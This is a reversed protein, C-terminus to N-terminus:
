VGQRLQERLRVLAKGLENRGQRDEGYGWFADIPSAEIIERDGTGLLMDRLKSHQSFKAELIKDMVSINVKFWDARQLRRSRSAEDFAARASPATRITESLQPDADLFKSAQFLHESTPYIKGQFEVPYPAFNTFEYYPKDKEYFLVPGSEGADRDGAAPDGLDASGSKDEQSLSRETQGSQDVVIADHERSTSYTTSVKAQDGSPSAGAM